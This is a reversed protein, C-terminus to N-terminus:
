LLGEEICYIYLLVLHFVLFLIDYFGVKNTRFNTRHKNIDYLRLESYLFTEENRVKTLKKVKKHLKIKRKIDFFGINVGRMSSSLLIKNKTELYLPYYRLLNNIKVALKVVKLNLFNFLNLFKEISYITESVSTTFVIVNLYLVFIVLKSTYILYSNLDLGMFYCIFAIFIYIYRLSYFTNFYYKIPVYSLLIMVFVFILLFIHIQQNNTLLLILIMLIFNLLKVIPNLRHIKSNVPYFSGFSTNSFM